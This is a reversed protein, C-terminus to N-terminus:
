PVHQNIFTAETWVDKRGRRGEGEREQKRGRKERRGMWNELKNM